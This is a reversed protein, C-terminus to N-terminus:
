GVRAAGGDVRKWCHGRGKEVVPHDGQGAASRGPGKCCEDGGGKVDDLCSPLDFICGLEVPAYQRLQPGHKIPTPQTLEKSTRKGPRRAGRRGTSNYEPAILSCLHQQTRSSLLFFYVSFLSLSLSLIYIYTYTPTNHGPGKLVYVNRSDRLQKELGFRVRTRDYALGSLLSYYCCRLFCLPSGGFSLVM